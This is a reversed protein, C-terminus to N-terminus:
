YVLSSFPSGYDIPISLDIPINQPLSKVRRQSPPSIISYSSFPHDINPCSEPLFYRRPQTMELLFLEFIEQSIAPHVEASELLQYLTTGEPFVEKGVRVRRSTTEEHLLASCAKRTRTLMNAMYETQKYRMTKEDLRYATRNDM